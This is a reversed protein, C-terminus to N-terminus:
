STRQDARVTSATQRGPWRGERSAPTASTRYLALLDAVCREWTPLTIAPPILPAQIQQILGQAIAAPSADLAVARVLGDEALERLGSTAAVLVPRRLALAEMVGIPHAEYDSLLTVVAASSLVEAMRQREAAPIATIEVSVELGLQRVRQRLTAEYPGSGLILLRAAPYHQRVLPLAELVRHHGKYRELRGLSVILTGARDPGPGSVAPLQAGNKIVAFREAPLRLRAQFYEAEFRSVGILRAAGAFLPRLAAWQAGRIAQRFASSHGGTHFTVVYPIRRRRAALMALPPVFTHCGQCHILDWDGAAIIRYIGPAFYFDERAPWAAVRTIQVGHAAERRALRGTPDTTLITVELGAAALRRGVEYVHTEIGGTFPFYRPTVLLVRRPQHSAAPSNASARQAVATRM